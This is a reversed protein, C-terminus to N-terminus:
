QSLIACGYPQLVYENDVETWQHTLGELIVCPRDVPIAKPAISQIKGSLNLMVVLSDNQHSRIFGIVEV